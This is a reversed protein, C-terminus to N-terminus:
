WSPATGTWTWITPSSPIRITWPRWLPTWSRPSRTSGPTWRTVIMLWTTWGDPTKAPALDEGDREVLEAEEALRLLVPDVAAVPVITSRVEDALARLDALLASRRAQVALEADEPLRVPPLVPPLNFMDELDIDDWDASEDDDFGSAYYEDLYEDGFVKGNTFDLTLPDKDAV